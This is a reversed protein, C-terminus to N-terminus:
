IASRVRFFVLDSNSNLVSGSFPFWIITCESKTFCIYITNSKHLDAYNWNPVQKLLSYNPTFLDLEIFQAKNQRKKLFTYFQIKKRFWIYITTITTTTTTTTTFRSRSFRFDNNFVM